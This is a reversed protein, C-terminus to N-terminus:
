LNWMENCNHVNLYNQQMTNIKYCEILILKEATRTHNAFAPVVEELGAHYHLQMRFPLQTYLPLNQVIKLLRKECQKSQRCEKVLSFLVTFVTAFILGCSFALQPILPM